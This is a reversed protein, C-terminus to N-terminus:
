AAECIMVRGKGHNKGNCSCECNMVRGTANMCRADCEHRSPNSKMQVTRTIRLLGHEPHYGFPVDRSLGEVSRYSIRALETRYLQRGTNTTGTKITRDRFEVTTGDALDAFHVLGTM